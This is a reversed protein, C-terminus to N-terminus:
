TVVLLFQVEPLLVKSQEYIFYPYVSSFNTDLSAMFCKRPNYFFCFRSAGISHGAKTITQNGTLSPFPCDSPLSVEPVMPPTLDKMTANYGQGTSDRGRRRSNGPAEIM